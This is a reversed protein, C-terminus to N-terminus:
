QGVMLHSMWLYTLPHSLHWRVLVSLLPFFVGRFGFSTGLEGHSIIDTSRILGSGSDCPFFAMITITSRNELIIRSEGCSGFDGWLSNGLDEAVFNEFQVSDGMFDYRVSSGLEDRWKHFFEIGLQLYLSVWGSSVTPFIVYYHRTREEHKNSVVTDDSVSILMVSMENYM